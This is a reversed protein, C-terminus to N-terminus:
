DTVADIHGPFRRIRRRLARVGPVEFYRFYDAAKPDVDLVINYYEEIGGAQIQIDDLGHWTLLKGSGAKFAGLNPDDTSMFSSWEQVSLQWLRDFQPLTLSMPDAGVDKM